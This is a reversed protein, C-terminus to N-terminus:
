LEIHSNKSDKFNLSFNNEDLVSKKLFAENLVKTQETDSVHNPEGTYHTPSVISPQIAFAQLDKAKYFSAWHASQLFFYICM